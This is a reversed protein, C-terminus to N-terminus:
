MYELTRRTNYGADACVYDPMQKINELTKNMMEPFQNHDRAKHLVLAFLCKVKM